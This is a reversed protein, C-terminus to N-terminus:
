NVGTIIDHDEPDTLKNILNKVMVFLMVSFAFNSAVVLIPMQQRFTNSMSCPQDMFGSLHFVNGPTITADPLDFGCTPTSSVSLGKIGAAIAAITPNLVGVKLQRSFTCSTQDFFNAAGSCDIIEPSECVHGIGIEGIGVLCNSTDTNVEFQPMNKPLYISSGKYTVFYSPDGPIESTANGIYAGGYVYYKTLTNFNTDPCDLETFTEDVSKYVSGCVLKLGLPSTEDVEETYIAWVMTTPDLLSSVPDTTKNKYKGEFTTYTGTLSINVQYTLNIVSPPLADPLPATFSSDVTIFNDSQGSICAITYDTVGNDNPQRFITSSLSPSMDYLLSFSNNSTDIRFMGTYNTMEIGYKPLTYTNGSFKTSYKLTASGTSPFAYGQYVGAWQTDDFKTLFYDRGALWSTFSSNSKYDFDVSCDSYFSSPPAAYASVSMLTPLVLSFALALFLKKM